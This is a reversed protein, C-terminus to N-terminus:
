FPLSGIVVLDQAKCNQDEHPVPKLNTSAIIATALMNATGRCSNIVIGRVGSVGLGGGHEVKASWLAQNIEEALQDAFASCLPTECAITIMQPPLKRLTAHLQQVEQTTL